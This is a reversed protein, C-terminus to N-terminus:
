LVGTLYAVDDVGSQYLDCCADTANWFQMGEVNRTGDPYAYIFGREPAVAEMGFYLSQILGTAGYGHLLIVLPAPVAPDYGPPVHVTVPRAGGVVFDEVTAAAGADAAALLAAFVGILLQYHKRARVRTQM